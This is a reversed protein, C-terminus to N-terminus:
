PSPISSSTATTCYSAHLLIFTLFEPLTAALQPIQVDVFAEEIIAKAGMVSETDWCFPPLLKQLKKM